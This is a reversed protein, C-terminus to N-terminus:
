NRKNGSGSAADVPAPLSTPAAHLATIQSGPAIPIEGTFSGTIHKPIFDDDLVDFTATFTKDANQKLHLTGEHIPAYSLSAEGNGKALWSGYGAAVSSDYAFMYGPIYNGEEPFLVHSAATYDGAPISKLDPSLPIDFTVFHGKKGQSTWSAEDYFYIKWMNYTEGKAYCKQNAYFAEGLAFDDTLSTFTGVAQNDFTLSGVYDFSIQKGYSDKLTGFIQHKGSDTKRITFFGDSVMYRTAGGDAPVQWLTGNSGNLMGAVFTGEGFTGSNDVRYTGLAPMITGGSPRTSTFDLCIRYNYPDGENRHETDFLVIYYNAANPIYYSGYYTGHANLCEIADAAPNGNYDVFAVPGEFTFELKTEDRGAVTGSLKCSADTVEFTFSGSALRRNIETGNDTALWYSESGFTGAKKEESFTYTGEDPVPKAATSLSSTFELYLKQGDAELTLQYLGLGNGDVDGRYIADSATTFAVTPVEPDPGPGPGPGPQPEKNDSCAATLAAASLLIFFFLSFKNKM